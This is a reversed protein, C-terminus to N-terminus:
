KGRALKFRWQEDFFDAAVVKGPFRSDAPTRVDVIAWDPLKSVQRANNLYDYERYTFSSNLVIYKGPNLPNPYIAIVAHHAPDFSRDGAQVSDSTWHIPLKEAIRAFVQNSQPDGWLILNSTAIDQESIDTDRKVVADGRMQQRWQKVAHDQEGKVWNEVAASRCTGSPSVFVFSSLFADDIPGQLGHKKHLGKQQGLQWGNGGFIFSTTGDAPLEIPGAGDIHLKRPSGKPPAITFASVNKTQVALQDGSPKIVVRSEEWHDKLGDVTLWHMRNYRLTFTVFQLSAPTHDVGNVAWEALKAEIEKRSDPHISHATKPGILHLLHMGEREFAAAMVDAAQKQSDIEGSYAVTPLHALNAAYGPCDYMRWLKQEYWTPTLTEKQFVKLFEPTESFGAGPNAAFWRDPYHVAFQWCAAGGMSFGRVAIRDPDVLYQEQVAALAEFTDIEGAFKNANCYRGYPHLVITDAPSIAGVNKSRDNLFNVESLTEGRGHFWIDLRHRKNSQFDYTAPIVLGYPQVTQDIQSLYGRVVLGTKQTWPAKGALLSEARELGQKLLAKGVPIEKVDFFEHFRVAQDVARHFILVDPLLKGAVPDKSDKLRQIQSALEALDKELQQQDEAPLEVGRKPVRRVNDPVNDAPGDASALCTWGLALLWGCVQLLKQRHVM